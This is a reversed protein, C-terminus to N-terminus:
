HVQGYTHFIIISEEKLIRIAWQYNCSRHAMLIKFSLEKYQPVLKTVFKQLGRVIAGRTITRLARSLVHLYFLFHLVRPVSLIEDMLM